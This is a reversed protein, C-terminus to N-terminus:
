QAKFGLQAIVPRHDSGASDGTHVDMGVLEASHFVYDIRILPYLIPLRFPLPLLKGNAPFTLGLGRGVERHTDVLHRTVRRYQRTQDTLNFDGVAIVPGDVEEVKQMLAEVQITQQETEFRQIVYPPFGQRKVYRVHPHNPHLNFLHVDRGGADLLLHQSLHGGALAAFTEESKIPLRSFVGSGSYDARPALSRYPYSEAMGKSLAAAVEPILEQIAIVDPDEEDVMQLIGRIDRNMGLINYTMVKFETGKEVPKAPQPLFQQGFLFVFMAVPFVCLTLLSRSWLVLGLFLLPVVPAFLYLAFTDALDLWWPSVPLAWRVLFYGVLPGAYALGVVFVISSFFSRM